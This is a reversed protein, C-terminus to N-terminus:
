ATPLLSQKEIIMQMCQMNKGVSDLIDLVGPLREFKTVNTTTRALQGLHKLQLNATKKCTQGLQPLSDKPCHTILSAFGEPGHSYEDEYNHTLVEAKELLRLDKSQYNPCELTQLFM